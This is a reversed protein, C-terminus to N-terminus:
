GRGESSPGDRRKGFLDRIRNSVGDSAKKSVGAAVDVSGKARALGSSAKEAIYDATNKAADCIKDASVGPYKRVVKWVAELVVRTSEALIAGIMAFAQVSAYRRLEKRTMRPHYGFYRKAIIGVRLTLLANAIGDVVCKSTFAAIGALGPVAGLFSESIVPAILEEIQEDVELDEISSAMFVTVAVNAYLQFTERLPPRQNYVHALQWILRIQAILVSVADLRGNQSIATSVFVLSAASKTIADARCDLLAIAREVDGENDLPIGAEKLLTNQKLRSAIKLLYAGYEPSREDDPPELAAPRRIFIFIPVLVMFAYLLLLICLLSTGLLPHVTTALNVTLITQNIVFLVFLVLITLSTWLFIFRLSKRM